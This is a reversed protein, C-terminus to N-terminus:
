TEMKQWLESAMLAIQVLYRLSEGKSFTTFTSINEINIGPDDM